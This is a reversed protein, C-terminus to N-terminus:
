EVVLKLVTTNKDATMKLIYMGKLEQPLEMSVEKTGGPNVHREGVKCANLDFISLTANYIPISFTIKVQGNTVPNPYVSPSNMRTEIQGLTSQFVAQISLDEATTLSIPNESSNM